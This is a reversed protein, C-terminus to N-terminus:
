LVRWNVKLGAHVDYLENTPKINLTPSVFPNGDVFDNYTNQQLSGVASAYFIM